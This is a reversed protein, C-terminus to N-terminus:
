MAWQHSRLAPGTLENRGTHAIPTGHYSGLRARAAAFCPLVHHRADAGASHGGHRIRRLHTRSVSSIKDSVEAFLEGALALIATSFAPNASGSLSSVIPDLAKMRRTCTEHGLTDSVHNDQAFSQISVHNKRQRQVVVFSATQSALRLRNSQRPTQM